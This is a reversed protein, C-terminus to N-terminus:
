AGLGLAKRHIFQIYNGPEGVEHVHSYVEAGDCLSNLPHLESVNVFELSAKQPDNGQDEKQIGLLRAKMFAQELSEARILRLHEDFQGVASEKVATIRFVIKAVYWNM